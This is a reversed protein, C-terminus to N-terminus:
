IYIEASSHIYGMITHISYVINDLYKYKGDTTGTDTCVKIIIDVISIQFVLSSFLLKLVHNEILYGSM